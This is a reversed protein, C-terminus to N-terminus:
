AGPGPDITGKPVAKAMAKIILPATAGVQLAILPKLPTGSAEYVYALLAGLLPWVVYPLWYLWDKFDPRRDKAINQLEMLNLLNISLGGLFAVVISTYDM